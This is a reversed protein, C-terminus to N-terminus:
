WPCQASRDERLRGAFAARVPRPSRPCPPQLRRWRRARTRPRLVREVLPGAIKWCCIEPHVASRPASPAAACGRPARDTPGVIGNM